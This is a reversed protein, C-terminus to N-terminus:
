LRGQKKERVRLIRPAWRGREVGRGAWVGPHPPSPQRSGPPSAAVRPKGQPCEGLAPSAKRVSRWSWVFACHAPPQQARAPARTILSSHPCRATEWARATPAARVRGDFGASQGWSSAESEHQPGVPLAAEVSTPPKRGGPPVSGQLCSPTVPGRPPGESSHWSGGNWCVGERLECGQLSCFHLAPLSDPCLPARQPTLMGPIVPPQPACLPVALLQAPPQITPFPRSNLWLRSQVPHGGQPCHPQPGEFQAQASSPESPAPM